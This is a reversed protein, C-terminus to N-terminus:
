FKDEQWLNIISNTISISDLVAHIIEMYFTKGTGSKVNYIQKVYERAEEMNVSSIHSTDVTRIQGFVDERVVFYIAGLTDDKTVVASFIDWSSRVEPLMLTLASNEVEALTALLNDTQKRASVANFINVGGLVVVLLITIALMSSVVFKKQLQKIM